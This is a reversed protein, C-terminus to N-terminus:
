CSIETRLCPLIADVLIHNCRHKRAITSKMYSFDTTYFVSVITAMALAFVPAVAGLGASALCGGLASRWEKRNYGLLRPIFSGGADFCHFIVSCSSHRLGSAQSSYTVQVLTVPRKGQILSKFLCFVGASQLLISIGADCGSLSTLMALQLCSGPLALSLLLLQKSQNWNNLSCECISLGASSDM